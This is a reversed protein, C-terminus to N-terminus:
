NRLVKFKEMRKAKMLTEFKQHTQDFLIEASDMQEDLNLQAQNREDEEFFDLNISFNKKLVGNFAELFERKKEVLRRELEKTHKKFYVYNEYHGKYKKKVTKLAESSELDEDDLDKAGDRDNGKLCGQLDAIRSRLKECADREGDFKNKSVGIEDVIAKIEQAITKGKGEKFAEFLVKKDLKGNSFVEDENFDKSSLNNFKAIIRLSADVAEEKKPKATQAPHNREVLQLPKPEKPNPDSPAIGLGFGTLYEEQGIPAKNHKENKQNEPHKAAHLNKGPDDATAEQAQKSELLVSKYLNRLQYFLEKVQRISEISLDDVENALFKQALVQQEYQQEPSYPEYSIRGRGTLTDHMALEAKLDRIEREYKKILFSEDLHQSKSPCSTVKSIRSAFRLTSITEELHSSEAWINAIMIM